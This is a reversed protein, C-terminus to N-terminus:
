KPGLEPGGQIRLVRMIAILGDIFIHLVVSTCYGFGSGLLSQIFISSSISILSELGGFPM